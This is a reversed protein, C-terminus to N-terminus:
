VVRSITTGLAVSGGDGLSEQASKEGVDNQIIRVELQLLCRALLTVRLRAGTLQVLAEEVVFLLPECETRLTSEISVRRATAVLGDLSLGTPREVSPHSRRRPGSSDDWSM